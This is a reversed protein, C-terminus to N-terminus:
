PLVSGVVTALVGCVSMYSVPEVLKAAHTLSVTNFMSQYEKLNVVGDGDKDAFLVQADLEEDSMRQGFGRLGKGLEGKTLEGDGNRDMVTFEHEKNTSPEEVNPEFIACFEKFDIKDDGKAALEFVVDLERQREAETSRKM